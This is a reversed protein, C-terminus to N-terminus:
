LSSRARVAPHSCRALPPPSTPLPISGGGGRSTGPPSLLVPPSPVRRRLGQRFEARGPDTEQEERQLGAQLDSFCFASTCLRRNSLRSSDDGSPRGRTGSGRSLWTPRGRPPAGREENLACGRSTPFSRSRQPPPVVGGSRSKLKPLGNGLHAASDEGPYERTSPACPDTM